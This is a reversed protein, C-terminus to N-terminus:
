CANMALLTPEFPARIEEEAETRALKQMLAQRSAANLNGGSYGDSLYSSSSLCRLIGGADDLSETATSYRVGTGKEHVTNVRLQRGALEFGDMQELAMKADDQRKYRPLDHALNRLCLQYM